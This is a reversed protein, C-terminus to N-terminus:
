FLQLRRSSNHFKRQVVEKLAGSLRKTIDAELALHVLHCKRKHAMSLCRYSFVNKLVSFSNECMATSTGVAVALKFALLVSPMTKFIDHYKSSLLERISISGGTEKKLNEVYQKAILFESEVIPSNTLQMLPKIAAVNLFNCNHPDVAQVALALETQREGFRHEMEGVVQDIVSFYLRRLAAENRASRQGTTEEVAYDQHHVPQTRPRKEPVTSVSTSSCSSWLEKFKDEARLDRVCQM